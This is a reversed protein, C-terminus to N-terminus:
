SLDLSEFEYGEFTADNRRVPENSSSGDGFIMAFRDALGVHKSGTRQAIDVVAFQLDGVTNVLHRRMSADPSFHRISMKVLEAQEPCMNLGALTSVAIAVWVRRTEPSGAYYPLSPYDTWSMPGAANVNQVPQINKPTACTM